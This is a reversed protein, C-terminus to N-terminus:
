FRSPVSCPLFSLVLIWQVAPTVCTITIVLEPRNPYPSFVKLRFSSGTLRFSPSGTSRFPSSSLHFSSTFSLSPCLLCIESLAGFVTTGLHFWSRIPIDRLCAQSEFGIAASPIGTGPHVLCSSPCWGTQVLAPLAWLEFLILVCLPCLPPCLISM